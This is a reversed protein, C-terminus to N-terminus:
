PAIILVTGECVAEPALVKVKFSVVVNFSPSIIKPGPIADPVVTVTLLEVCIVNLSAVVAIIM